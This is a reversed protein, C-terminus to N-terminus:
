KSLDYVRINDVYAKKPEERRSVNLLIKTASEDGGAPDFAANELIPVLNGNDLYYVNFVNEDWTLVMTHWRDNPLNVLNGTQEGGPRPRVNGSGTVFVGILRGSPSFVEININDRWANNQYFDVMLKGVRVEPIAREIIGYLDDGPNNNLEVALNGDSVFGSAADVVIGATDHNVDWGVPHGGVTGEEFSDFFVLEEAAATMSFAAVLMMVVVAISLKRM